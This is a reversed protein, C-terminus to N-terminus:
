DEPAYVKRIYNQCIYFKMCIGPRSFSQFMQYLEKAKSEAIPDCFTVTMQKLVTAWSFLREVFAVEHESGSLEQIEIEQLHNLLLEESKWNPQQDCICVSSCAAPAEFNHYDDIEPLYTLMITLMELVEFHQLLSLYARNCAWHDEHGYVFCLLDGLSQLQAMKGFQVSSQDYLDIWKLLLLRPASINAVPQSSDYGFCYIVSLEKLEPVVITLQRLGRLQQLQLQLLSESHITLNDLGRTRCVALKKLCPCRASSVAEGLECPGHFRMRSLSLCTLRSFVGAPPVALGILFGLYLAVTAAKEFCPLELVGREAAEEDDGDEADRGPTSNFLVLDGSVRLAAAPLWVALSEPDADEADVFLSRLPAERADLADRFGGPEPAFSFFLEPLLAWVRRWRRSLVSTRAAAPTSLRLLILVLVDDPLASLRDEGGDALDDSTLKARKAAVEGGSLEM